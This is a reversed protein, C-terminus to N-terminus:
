LNSVDIQSQRVNAFCKSIANHARLGVGGGEKVREVSDMWHRGGPQRPLQTSFHLWGSNRSM